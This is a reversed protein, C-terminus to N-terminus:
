RASPLVAKSGRERRGWVEGLAVGVGVILSIMSSRWCSVAWPRSAPGSVM